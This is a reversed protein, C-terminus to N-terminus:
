GSLRVDLQGACSGHDRLRADHPQGRHHDHHRRQGLVLRWGSVLYLGHRTSRRARALHRGYALVVDWKLRTKNSLDIPTSYVVGFWAEAVADIRLGYAGHTAFDSSQATTGADPTWSAPAFGETGSEFSHLVLAANPDPQVEVHIEAENSVRGRSDEVVYLASATGVFGPAPTFLVIGAADALFTGQDLVLTSQIGATQLDFDLSQRRITASYAVDNSLPDLTVATDFPTKVLDHDAVPPFTLHRKTAMMDSFNELLSCVPSSCYVTFGDFDPYLTGNDQEGALMWFSAGAGRARVVADTWTKFVPARVDHGLVGFEGLVAPKGLRRADAIHREIWRTGFEADKGWHDPYLHFSMVDVHPLRTLALSDVGESCNETWDTASPDCYFGEDGVSVLHRRDISQIFRSMEDAWRTITPATCSASAPYVGSGRCRPENALEWAMITPEDKYKVGTYVNVRELVHSVWARYWDRITPDTYFDDHSAAGRWSVYQDMGGFDRWNNVLPLVLKLGLEKARLVVYDLRELGDAGDNYAPATGTWYQFYVVGDAKGHTSGSGDANGIDIAAWTRVVTFGSDAATELVDDVMFESKYPLYYNNAGAFRFEENKLRLAHGRVEVFESGDSDCVADGPRAEANSLIGFLAAFAAAGLRITSM